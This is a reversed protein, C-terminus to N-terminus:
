TDMGDEAIHRSLLKIYFLADVINNENVFNEAKTIFQNCNLQSVNTSLNLNKMKNLIDLMESKFQENNITSNKTAEKEKNLLLSYLEDFDYQEM